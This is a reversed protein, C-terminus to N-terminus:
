RMLLKILYLLLLHAPYFIYFFYKNIRIKFDTKFYILILSLVAFGGISLGIGGLYFDPASFPVFYLALWASSTLLLLNIKDRFIYFILILVIGDLGYNLSLFCSSIITAALLFYNKEKLSYISILGFLLTFITNLSNIPKNLALAFFPQSIVAFILLRWAYKKLDKSYFTGLVLCYAFLPFSWRGIVQFILIDPFLVRGIHDSLMAMIAIIKLFDTNTNGAFYKRVEDKKIM